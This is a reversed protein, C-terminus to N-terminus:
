FIPLNCCSIRLNLIIGFVDLTKFFLDIQDNFVLVTQAGDMLDKTENELKGKGRCQRKAGEEARWFLEERETLSLNAM